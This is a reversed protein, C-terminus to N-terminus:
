RLRLQAPDVSGSESYRLSRFSPDLRKLQSIRRFRRESDNPKTSHSFLRQLGRGTSLEQLQFDVGDQRCLDFITMGDFDLSGPRSREPSPLGYVFTSGGSGRVTLSKLDGRSQSSEFNLPRPFSYATGSPDLGLLEDTLFTWSTASLLHDALTTKGAGGSGPFLYLENKSAFAAGHVFVTSAPALSLFTDILVREFLLLFDDRSETRYIPESRGERRLALRRDGRHIDFTREPASERNGSIFPRLYESLRPVEELSSIRVYSNALTLHVQTPVDESMGSSLLTM